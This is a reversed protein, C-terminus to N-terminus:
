PQPLVNSASNFYEEPMGNEQIEMCTYTNRAKPFAYSKSFPKVVTTAVSASTAAAGDTARILHSAGILLNLRSYGCFNFGGAQDKTAIRRCLIQVCATAM